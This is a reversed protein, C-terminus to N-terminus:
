SHFHDHTTLLSLYNSHYWWVKHMGIPMTYVAAAAAQSSPVSRVARYFMDKADHRVGDKAGYREVSEELWLMEMSFLSALEASPLPASIRALVTGLYLDENVQEYVLCPLPM